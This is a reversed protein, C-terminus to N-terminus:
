RRRRRPLPAAPRHPLQDGLFQALLAGATIKAYRIWAPTIRGAEGMSLTFALDVVETALYVIRERDAVRPVVFHEELLGLFYLSRARDADRDLRKLEPPTQGGIALKAFVPNARHFRASRDVLSALLSRWSRLDRARLPRTLAADHRAGLEQLLARFLSDLDPYFHHASGTPVGAEACVAAYTVQPLDHRALLASAAGLLRERREDGRRQTGKPPAQAAPKPPSTM